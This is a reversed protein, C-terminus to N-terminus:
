IVIGSKNADPLGIGLQQTAVPPYRMPGPHVAEHPRGVGVGAPEDNDSALLGDDLLLEDVPCLVKVM